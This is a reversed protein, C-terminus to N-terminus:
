TRNLQRKIVTLELGWDCVMVDTVIPKSSILQFILSPDQLALSPRSLQRSPFTRLPLSM